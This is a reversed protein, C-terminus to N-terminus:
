RPMFLRAPHTIHRRATLELPLDDHPEDLTTFADQPSDLTSSDSHSTSSTSALYCHRPPHLGAGSTWPAPTRLLTENELATLCCAVKRHTCLLLLLLTREARWCIQLNWASSLCAALSIARSDPKDIVLSHTLGRRTEFLGFLPSLRTDRIPRPHPAISIALLRSTTNSTQVLAVDFCAAAAPQPTDIASPSAFIDFFLMPFCTERQMPCACQGKM